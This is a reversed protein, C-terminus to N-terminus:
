AAASSGTELRRRPSGGARKRTARHPRPRFPLGGRAPHLGSRDLCVDRGPEVPQRPRSPVPQHHDAEAGHPDEVPELDRDDARDGTSQGLLAAAQGDRLALYADSGADVDGAGAQAREEEAVEGVPEAPLLQEQDGQHDVQRRRNRGGERHVRHEEVDAAEERARADATLVCGDVGRDVLQDRGPETAADVEDDVPGEPQARREARRQRHVEEVLVVERLVEAPPDRETETRHEADGDQEHTAVDGLRGSPQEDVPALLAGRADHTVDLALHLTGHAVRQGLDVVVEGDALAAGDAEARDRLSGPRQVRLAEHEAQGQEHALREEVVGDEEGECEDEGVDHVHLRGGRRPEQDRGIPL